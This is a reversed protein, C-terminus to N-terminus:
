TCPWVEHVKGAPGSGADRKGTPTPRAVRASYNGTLVSPRPGRLVKASGDVFEERSERCITGGRVLAQGLEILAVCLHTALLLLRFLAGGWLVSLQRRVDLHAVASCCKAAGSQPLRLVDACSLLCHGFVFAAKDEPKVPPAAVCQHCQGAIRGLKPPGSVVTTNSGRDIVM